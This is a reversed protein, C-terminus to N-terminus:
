PTFALSDPVYYITGETAYTDDDPPVTAAIFKEDVTRRYERYATIPNGRAGITTTMHGAKYDHSYAAVAMVQNTTYEDDNAVYEHIDNLEVFPWCPLRISQDAFPLKTDELALQLYLEAEEITDINTTRDLNIRMYRPGYKGISAADEAYVGKYRGGDEADYFYAHAQNRVDEDGLSLDTVDEYRTPGITQTPTLTWLGTDPDYAGARPDYYAMGKSQFWRVDWGHQQAIRRWAELVTLEEQTYRYVSFGPTGYVNVIGAAGLWDTSIADIVDESPQGAPDGYDTAVNITRNLYFASEDRYNVSVLGKGAANYRDIRGSVLQMTWTSNIVIGIFININPDLCAVGDNYFASEPVLPSLSNTGRGRSFTVSGNMCVNDMSANIRFSDVRESLDQTGLTPHVVTVWPDVTFHESTLAALIAAYDPGPIM